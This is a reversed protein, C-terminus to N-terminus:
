GNRASFAMQSATTAISATSVITGDPPIRLTGDEYKFTWTKHPSALGTADKAYVNITSYDIFAPSHEDNHTFRPFIRDSMIPEQPLINLLTKDKRKFTKRRFQKEFVPSRYILLQSNTIRWM